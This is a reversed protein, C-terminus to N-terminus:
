QKPPGDFFPQIKLSDIPLLPPPQVPRFPKLRSLSDRLSEQAEALLLSDVQKEAKALLSERCSEMKKKKFDEVRESVKEAILKHKDDACAIVGLCLFLCLLGHYFRISNLRSFRFIMCSMIPCVFHLQCIENKELPLLLALTTSECLYCYEELANKFLM